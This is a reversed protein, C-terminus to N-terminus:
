RESVPQEPSFMEQAERRLRAATAPSAGALEIVADGQLSLTVGAFYLPCSPVKEYGRTRAFALHCSMQAFLERARAPSTVHLRVGRRTEEIRDIAGALLPCGARAESSIGTCSQEEFRELEQAAKAHEEAFHLHRQAIALHHATPNYVRLPQHNFPDQFPSDLAVEASRADPDYKAEAERAARSHAAVESRHEEASMDDPRVHHTTCGTMSAVLGATFLSFAKM